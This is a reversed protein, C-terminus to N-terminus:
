RACPRELCLCFKQCVDKKRTPLPAGDEHLPEFGGQTCAPQDEGLIESFLLTGEPFWSVLQLKLLLILGTVRWTGLTALGSNLDRVSQARTISLPPTLQSLLIPLPLRTGQRWVVPPIFYIAVM